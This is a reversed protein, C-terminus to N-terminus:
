EWVEAKTYSEYFSSAQDESTDYFDLNFHNFREVEESPKRFRCMFEFLNGGQIDELRCYTVELGFKELVGKLFDELDDIEQDTGEERFIHVSYIFDVAHRMRRLGIDKNKRELKFYAASKKM